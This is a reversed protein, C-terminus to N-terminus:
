ICESQVTLCTRLHLYSREQLPPESPNWSIETTGLLQIEWGKPLPLAKGLCVVARLAPQQDVKQALRQLVSPPFRTTTSYAIDAKPWPAELFDALHLECNDIELSAIYHSALRYLEPTREFGVTKLVRPSALACINGGGSGLDLFTEGPSPQLCELLELTLKQPTEGYASSEIKDNLSGPESLWDPILKSILGRHSASLLDVSSRFNQWNSTTM